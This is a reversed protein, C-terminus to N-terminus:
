GRKGTPVLYLLLLLASLASVSAKVTFPLDAPSIFGEVVGAVVLLVVAGALLAVAERGREVLASRRTRDGPLVLASGLWLGAGGAICIAALEIVGHPLVFALLYGSLGSAAFLGFVAGLFVGNFVLIAVSGVGAAVGGAFALISVQVNNSIIESAMLPMGVDPINVYGLGAARRSAGEEARVMMEAPLIQRAVGPDRYSVMGAALMPGFLLGTALLIPQWRRRVLAPFGSRLWIWARRPSPAEPRYLLNHGAGVSRELAYILGPSGGYARARALDAATERYLAAFRSVQDPRLEALGRREAQRVLSRFEGWRRGQRRAMAAAQPAGAGAAAGGRRRAEERHLALLEAEDGSGDAAGAPMRAAFRRHMQAGIRARAEAAIEERRAVFRALRTFEEESLQPRGGEEARGYSEPFTPEGGERVVVTGAVMDGVRQTRPHLMMATGGVLWTPPPLIDVIRLLNRVVAERVGVPYGGERIVRLGMARKGPTQGDRFGEFYAFYGWVIVFSVLGLAAFLYAVGVAGVTGLGAGVQLAGLWLAVLTGGLIISDLLLATFRSGLDALVYGVLVQEPTEIEVQRAPVPSSKM